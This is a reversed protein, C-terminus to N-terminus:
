TRRPRRNQLRAKLLRSSDRAPGACYGGPGFDYNAFFEAPVRDTRRVTERYGILGRKIATSISVGTQEVIEALAAEAEDDLRVSRTSMIAFEKGPPICDYYV